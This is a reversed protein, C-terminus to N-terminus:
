WVPQVHGDTPIVESGAFSDCPVVTPGVVLVAAFASPRQVSIPTVIGNRRQQSTSRHQKDALAAREGYEM